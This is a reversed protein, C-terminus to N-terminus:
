VAEIELFTESDDTYEEPTSMEYEDGYKSALLANAHAHEADALERARAEIQKGLVKCGADCPALLV